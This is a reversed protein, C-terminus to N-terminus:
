KEAKLKKAVEKGKKAFGTQEFILATAISMLSVLLMIFFIPNEIFGDLTNNYANVSFVYATWLLGIWGLYFLLFYLIRSVKDEM